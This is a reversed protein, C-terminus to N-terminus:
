FRKITNLNFYISVGEVKVVGVYLQDIILRHQTYSCSGRFDVAERRSSMTVSNRMKLM